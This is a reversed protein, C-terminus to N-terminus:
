DDRGEAQVSVAAYGSESGGIRVADHYVIRTSISSPVDPYSKWSPKYMGIKLRLSGQDNYTNPGRKEVVKVGNSWIELLGDQQYSWKTHIVWDTWAGREFPGEWVIELGGDPELDDGDTIPKPDWRNIVIWNDGRLAIELPPSRWTEGLEFDPLGHWQAITAGPWSPPAELVWDSPVFMSFGFWREDGVGGTYHRSAVAFEARKGARVLPDDRRLEFRVAQRGERVPADVLTASHSCCTQVAWGTFEDLEFGGAFLLSTDAASTCAALGVVAGLYLHGIFPGITSRSRRDGPDPNTSHSM